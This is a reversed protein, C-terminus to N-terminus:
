KRRVSILVQPLAYDYSHYIVAVEMCSTNKNLLELTYPLNQYISYLNNSIKIIM